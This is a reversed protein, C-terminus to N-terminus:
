GILLSFVTSEQKQNTSIQFGEGIIGYEIRDQNVSIMDSYWGLNLQMPMDLTQFNLAVMQCGTNWFMQPQYNDSAVRAGSSIYLTKPMNYNELAVRAGSSIYLTKPM